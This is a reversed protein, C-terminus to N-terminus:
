FLFFIKFSIVFLLIFFVDEVWVVNIDVFIVVVCVVLCVVVGGMCFGLGVNVFVM